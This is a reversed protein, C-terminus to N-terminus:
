EYYNIYYEKLRDMELQDVIILDLYIELSKISNNLIEYSLKVDNSERYEYISGLKKSSTIFLNKEISRLYNQMVEFFQAKTNIKCPFNRNSVPYNLVSNRLYQKELSYMKSILIQIKTKLESYRKKKEETANAGSYEFLTIEDAPLYYPLFLIPDEGYQKIIGFLETVENLVEYKKLYLNLGFLELIYKKFPESLSALVFTIVLPLAIKLSTIDM